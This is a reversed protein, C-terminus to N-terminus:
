IEDVEKDYTPNYKKAFEMNIIHGFFGMFLEDRLDCKRSMLTWNCEFGLYRFYGSDVILKITESDMKRVYEWAELFTNVKLHKVEYYFDFYPDEDLRERMKDPEEDMFTKWYYLKEMIDLSLNEELVLFDINPMRDAM